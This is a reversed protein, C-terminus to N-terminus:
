ADRDFLERVLIRCSDEDAIIRHMSLLLIHERGSLRLLQLRFLPGKSLDFPKKAASRMQRAVEAERESESLGSLDLLPLTSPSPPAIIPVARGDIVSYIAAAAFTTRLAQQRQVVEDIALRLVEVDLNGSLQFGHFLINAPNGPEMQELFWIREQIASMVLAGNASPAQQEELAILEAGGFVTQSHAEELQKESLSM